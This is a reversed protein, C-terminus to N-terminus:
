RELLLHSIAAAPQMRQLSSSGPIASPKPHDVAWFVEVRHVMVPQSWEYQVWPEDGKSEEEQRLVYMGHARDFSDAPTFGDNLASIKNESLLVLSSPIAVRAINLARAPEQAMGLRGELAAFAAAGAIGTLFDRRSAEVHSPPLSSKQTPKSTPSRHKASM